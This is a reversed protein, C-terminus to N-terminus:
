KSDGMEERMDWVNTAVALLDDPLPLWKPDSWENRILEIIIQELERCRKSEALLGETM